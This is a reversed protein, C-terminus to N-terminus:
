KISIEVNEIDEARSPEELLSEALPALPSQPYEKLLAILQDRAKEPQNAQLYLKGIELMLQDPYALYDRYDKLAEIYRHLAANYAKTRIYFNAIYLIHEVLSKKCKEIKKRASPVYHSDPFLFILTEFQKIAERAFTQDRDISCVQKYYSMGMQYHVYDIFQHKPHLRSFEQYKIFASEYQKQYFLCDAMKLESKIGWESIPYRSRCQQFTELADIYNNEKYYKMAKSYLEEAPAPPPPEKKGRFLGCASSFCCAIVILFILISNRMCHVRSIINKTFILKMTGYAAVNTM